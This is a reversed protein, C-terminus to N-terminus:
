LSTIEAFSSFYPVDPIAELELQPHDPPCILVAHIGAQLLSQLGRLSDEFGIVRDNPKALLALAKQYGEPSPKPNKYDERTIWHPITKLLPLNNKISEVQTRTSNTVVARKINAKELAQLLERVGPLLTVSGEDLLREYAKKKEAYLVEWSPEDAYLEPLEKYISEKLGTSSFHAIALFKQFDWGLNYGREECMVRYADCHLQETNVLLGDFDFLFLDYNHIWDLNM